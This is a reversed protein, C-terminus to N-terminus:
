DFWTRPIRAHCAVLCSISWASTAAAAVCQTRTRKRTHMAARAHMCAHRPFLGTEVDGDAVTVVPTGAVRATQWYGGADLSVEASLPGLSVLVLHSRPTIPTPAGLPRFLYAGSRVCFGKVGNGCQLLVCRVCRVGSACARALIVSPLCLSVRCFVCLACVCRVCVCRRDTSYAAFSQALAVRSGSARSALGTLFGSGTDIETSVCENELLATAGAGVAFKARPGGVSRAAVARAVFTM